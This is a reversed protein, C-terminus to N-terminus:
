TINMICESSINSVTNLVGFAQLQFIISYASNRISASSSIYRFLCRPESEELSIKLSTCAREGFDEADTLTRRIVEKWDPKKQNINRSYIRDAHITAPLIIDFVFVEDNSSLLKIEESVNTFTAIKFHINKTTDPKPQGYLVVSNDALKFSEHSSFKDELVMRNFDKDTVFHYEVGERENERKPRTTFPIQFDIDEYESTKSIISMIEHYISDKGTCSKGCIYIYKHM